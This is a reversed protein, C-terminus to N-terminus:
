NPLKKHLSYYSSSFSSLGITPLMNIIYNTTAFHLDWYPLPFSAHALLTIRTGVIQKPKRKAFGNQHSTYACTLSHMIGLEILNNTFPRFEIVFDAQVVRINTQFQARIYALFLKFPTMADSKIKLFYVWTYKLCVDVFSIYYKSDM